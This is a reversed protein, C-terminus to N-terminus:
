SFDGGLTYSYGRLKNKLIVTDQKLDIEIITDNGKQIRRVTKDIKLVLGCKELAESLTDTKYFCLQFDAIIYEPQLSKPLVSSSFSLTNENYSLSGLNAGLENFLSIEMGNEDAKVWANFYFESGQWSASIFQAMDM